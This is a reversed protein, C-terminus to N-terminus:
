KDDTRVRPIFAAGDSERAKGFPPKSLLYATLNRAVLRAGAENFHLEDFFASTDKPVHSSIDYCELGQQRCVDLLLHNYQDMARAMDGASIYGKPHAWFGTYGEWPLTQEYPSLNDRWMSPQTLFLCRMQLDRCRSALALIRSHYERLGASLDPLPVIPSSARRKRYWAIDPLALSVPRSLHQKLIQIAEETLRYFELRRYLPYLKEVRWHPGPPLDGFWAQKELLTQTPTEEFALSATLDTLGIMFVAMDFHLIEPLWQMLVLHHVATTASIGANGVWVARSKQVGNLSEMVLHPWEESDDLNACSVTSAGIMVIKYAAPDRPPMPGRFGFVNTTFTKPGSVGPTVSANMTTVARTWPQPAASVPIPPALGMLRGFGEILIVGLYIAYVGILLTATRQLFAQRKRSLFFLGLGAVLWLAAIVAVASTASNLRLVIEGRLRATVIDMLLLVPAVLHFLYLAALFAPNRMGRPQKANESKM